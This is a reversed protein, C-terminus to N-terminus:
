RENGIDKLFLLAKSCDFNKTSRAIKSGKLDFRYMEKSPNNLLTVNKMLVIFVPKFFPTIVEFMGYYRALLSGPHNELYSVYEDIMKLLSIKDGSSMTKILFSNDHSYFFFSGSKGAGEGAGKIKRVNAEVNLSKVISDISIGDLERLKTFKDGAIENVKTDKIAQVSDRM